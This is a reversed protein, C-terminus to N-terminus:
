GLGSGVDAGLTVSGGVLEGSCFGDSSDLCSVAFGDLGMCGVLSFAGVGSVTLLSPLTLGSQSFM